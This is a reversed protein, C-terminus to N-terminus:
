LSLRKHGRCGCWRNGSVNVNGMFCARGSCPTKHPQGDSNLWTILKTDGEFIGRQHHWQFRPLVLGSAEQNWRWSFSRSNPCFYGFRTSCRRCLTFIAVCVSDFTPKYVYYTSKTRLVYCVLYPASVRRIDEKGENTQLDGAANRQSSRKRQRDRTAPRRSNRALGNRSSHLSYVEYHEACNARPTQRGDICFRGSDPITTGVFRDEVM